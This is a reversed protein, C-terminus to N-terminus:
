TLFFSVSALITLYVLSGGFTFGRVRSELPSIVVFHYYLGFTFQGAAVLHFLGLVFSSVMKFSISFQSLVNKIECHNNSSTKNVELPAAFDHKVDRSLVNFM